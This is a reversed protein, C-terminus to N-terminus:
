FAFGSFNANAFGGLGTVFSGTGIGATTDLSGNINGSAVQGVVNAGGFSLGSTLINANGFAVVAAGEIDLDKSIEVYNLDQILM